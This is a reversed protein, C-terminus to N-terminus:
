NVAYGGNAGCAACPINKTWPFFQEPQRMRQACMSACDHPEQIHNASVRCTSLECDIRQDYAFEQLNHGCTYRTFLVRLRCMTPTILSYQYRLRQPSLALASNNLDGISARITQSTGGKSGISLRASYSLREPEVLYGFVLIHYNHILSRRTCSIGVCLLALRSGSLLDLLRLSLSTSRGPFKGLWRSVKVECM